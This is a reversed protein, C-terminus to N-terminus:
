EDVIGGDYNIPTIVGNNSNVFICLAISTWHQKLSFRMRLHTFFNQYAVLAIIFSRM